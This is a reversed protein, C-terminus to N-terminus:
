NKLGCIRPNGNIVKAMIKGDITHGEWFLRHNFLRREVKCDHNILVIVFCSIIGIM